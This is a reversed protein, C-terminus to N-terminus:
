SLRHQDRFAKWVNECKLDALDDKQLTLVNAGLPAHKKPNSGASFLVVVPCGTPAILHMPGTDNGIAAFAGRALAPIDFLATKGCLNLVGPVENEIQKLIGEEAKAGILVPHFGQQLLRECLAAYHPAPWRKGPHSPASGPVILVYPVQLGEPAAAGNMWALQDAPVGEIGALRLTQVHGDFARGASREPSNNRHSAGRASGVWEPRPSFLCLYFSTRDNNQLDYVRTLKRDNLTRRLSLWGKLDNWKPKMDLLVVDFYGCAHAMDAYPKTTLITIRDQAHAARIAAMPGLAQIFDGLAGLKIVLINRPPNEAM